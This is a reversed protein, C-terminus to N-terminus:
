PFYIHGFRIQFFLRLGEKLFATKEACTSLLQKTGGAESIVRLMKKVDTIKVGMVVTVGKEFFPQPVVSATPGLLVVERASGKLRMIQNVTKNVLTSGSILIVDSSPLVLSAEASSIIKVRDDIISRRELVYIDRTKRLIKPVLPGFYGVMSVRDRPKILDLVDVDSSVYREPKAQFAMQSLANATAVGVVSELIRPSLAFNLIKLAPKDAIQGAYNLVSCGALEHIPTYAVGAHGTSLLVGTYALGIRVDKIRVESLTRGLEEKLYIIVDEM